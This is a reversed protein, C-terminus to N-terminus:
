AWNGVFNATGMEWIRFYSGALFIVGPTGSAGPRASAQMQPIITGGTTIAFVGTGYIAVKETASTSAATVVVPTSMTTTTNAGYVSGTTPTSATTYSLGEVQYNTGTGFVTSAGGFLVAWTHSTTGTNTLNYMFEFKYTKGTTVTLAGTSIGSNTTSTFLAAPTASTDLGTNNYTASNATAIIYQEADMQQRASARNTAYFANGDFEVAGAAATTLNTGSTLVIPAVTATGAGCVIGGNTTTLGTVTPAGTLAVAGAITPATLTTITASTITAIGKSSNLVLAKSALATGPTIGDLVTLESGSLSTGAQGPATAGVSVTNVILDNGGMDWNLTM